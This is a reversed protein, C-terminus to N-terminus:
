DVQLRNELTESNTYRSYDIEIFDDGTGTELEEKLMKLVEKFIPGAEGDGIVVDNLTVIPNLHTDGGTVFIESAQTAEALTVPAQNVDALLNKTFKLKLGIELVKRVTCGRLIKSFPPTKMVLGKDTKFVFIVNCVPAEAIYGKEDVWIALGTGGRDVSEMALLVNMLYNNSKTQALLGQKMPVETTSITYERLPNTIANNEHIICYFCSGDTNPLWGYNGTGATLYYRVFGNLSGSAACTDLIVERVEKISKYPIPIRAAKASKEFRRLHTDLRYAKGNILTCTDFVGHGRVVMHDDMPINMLAPDTVFGNFYSSYFIKYGPDRLRKARMNKLVQEINLFPIRSLGSM